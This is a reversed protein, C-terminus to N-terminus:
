TKSKDQFTNLFYEFIDFKQFLSQLIELNTKVVIEFEEKLQFKERILENIISFFSDQKNTCVMREKLQFATLNINHSADETIVLINRVNESLKLNLLGKEVLFDLKFCSCNRFSSVMEIMPKYLIMKTVWHSSILKTYHVKKKEKNEMLHMYYEVQNKDCSRKWKKFFM